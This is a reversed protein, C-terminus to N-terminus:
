GKGCPCNAEYTMCPLLLCRVVLIPSQTHQALCHCAANPNCIGHLAVVLGEGCYTVPGCGEAITFAGFCERNFWDHQITIEWWQLSAGYRRHHLQDTQLRCWLLHMPWLGKTDCQPLRRWCPQAMRCSINYFVPHSTLWNTGHLNSQGFQDGHLLLLTMGPLLLVSWCLQCYQGKCCDSRKITM